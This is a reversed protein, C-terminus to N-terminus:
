FEQETGLVTTEFMLVKGGLDRSPLRLPESEACSPTGHSRDPVVRGNGLPDEHMSYQCVAAESGQCPARIMSVRVLPKVFKLCWDTEMILWSLKPHSGMKISCSHARFHFFATFHHRPPPSAMFLGPSRSDWSRLAWSTDLALRQAARSTWHNLTWRSICPIGTWNRTRSSREHWSWRFGHAVAVSARARSRTSRLLSLGVSSLWLPLGARRLWLLGARPSLSGPCGRAVFIFCIFGNALFSSFAPM